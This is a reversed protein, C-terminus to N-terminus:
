SMTAKFPKSSSSCVSILKNSSRCRTYRGTLGDGSVERIAIPIARGIIRVSATCQNHLNGVVATTGDGLQKIQPPWSSLIGKHTLSGCVFLASHAPASQAAGAAEGLSCVFHGNAKSLIPYYSQIREAISASHKTCPSPTTCPSRLREM